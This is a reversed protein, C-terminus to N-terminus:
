SFVSDNTRIVSQTLGTDTITGTTKFPVIKSSAEVNRAEIIIERDSVYTLTVSQTGPTGDTGTDEIFDMYPVFFTDSGDYTRVLSHIAYTDAVSWATAATTTTDEILTTGLIGTAANTVDTVYAFGLTGSTRHIIDGVQVTASFNESSDELIESATSGDTTGALEAPLQFQGDDGTGGTADYSTYRYRHQKNATNDVVTFTGSTPTDNPFSGGAADRDFEVTGITNLTAHSTFQTKSPLETTGDELYIAIRDDARTNSVTVTVSTFPEQLAGTSDTLKINNADSSQMGQIWVAQAGFFVGGALTGYPAPKTSAYSPDAKIYEEAALATITSGDSTYITRDTSDQGDRLYYQLYGYIQTLSRTTNFLSGGELFVSYLAGESQLSFELNLTNDDTLGGTTTCTAASNDGLIVDTSVPEDTPDVNAFFIVSGTDDVVIASSAGANWTVREGLEFTGTTGSHTATGSMHAVTVDNFDSTISTSVGAFHTVTGSGSDTITEGSTFDLYYVDRSNGTIVTDDQFVLVGTTGDDQLGRLVRKATSTGGTCTLGVTLATGEATYTTLTGGETGNAVGRITNSVYINDNDTITGTGGLGRLTLVGTTGNDTIAVIEAYWTPPVGATLDVDSIIDDVTFGGGTEGDYLLYHEGTTINVEDASTELAIPTRGAANLTSEVFTFTDGTQRVFTSINGSDILTGAIQVPILIDISGRDWNSFASWEAIRIRLGSRPHDQYIYVQPSVDTPFSAISFLNHYIDDGTNSAGFADGVGTGSAVTIASNDAITLPTARTDRVWIRATNNGDYDLKYALLPGVATADDEIDKDLDGAIFDAWTSADDDMDLMYVPDAITDYNLTDIGGGTLYQLLNSGDGDDLFWGNLMTFSTPTNFKIPTEYSLFGPEDFVDM